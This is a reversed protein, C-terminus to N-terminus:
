DGEAEGRAFLGVCLSQECGRASLRDDLRQIRARTPAIVVFGILAIVMGVLYPWLSQALFAAVLGLVGASEAFAISFFLTTTYVDALDEPTGCFDLLRHTTWPISVLSLPAIAVLVYVLVPPSGPAALPLVMALVAALVVLPSAYAFFATRLRVIQPEDAERKRALGPSSVFPLSRVWASGWGSEGRPVKRGM